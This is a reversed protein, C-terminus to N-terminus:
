TDSCGESRKQSVWGEYNKVEAAVSGERNVDAGAQSGFRSPMTPFKAVLRM